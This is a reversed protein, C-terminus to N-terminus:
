QEIHSKGLRVASNLTLIPFTLGAIAPRKIFINNEAQAKSM